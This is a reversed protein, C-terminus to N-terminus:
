IRSIRRASTSPFTFSTYVALEFIGTAIIVAEPFSPEQIQFFTGCVHYTFVVSCYIAAYFISAEIIFPLPFPPEREVTHDV